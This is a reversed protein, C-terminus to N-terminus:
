PALGAARLDFEGAAPDVGAPLPLLLLGEASQGPELRDAVGIEGASWITGGTARLGGLVTPSLVPVKGSNTVQCHVYLASSIQQYSLIHLELPAVNVLSSSSGTTDVQAQPLLDNLEIEGRVLNPSLGPFDSLGILRVEGAELPIPSRYLHVAIVSDGQVLSLLVQAAAPRTGANRISALLIPNGQSDHTLKPESALQISTDARDQLPLGVAATKLSGLGSQPDGGLSASFPAAQSPALSSLTTWDSSVSVPHGQSDEAFIVLGELSVPRSSPNTVTGFVIPVGSSTTALRDLHVELPTVPSQRATYGRVTVKAQAAAGGAEIVARFPSSGGPSLVPLGLHEAVQGVATGSSDYLTIDLPGMDVTVKSQNVLRGTVQWTGAQVGPLLSLGDVQYDLEPTPSALPTPSSAPTVTQAPPPSSATATPQRPACGLAASAFLIGVLGMGCLSRM